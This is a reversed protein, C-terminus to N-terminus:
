QDAEKQRAEHKRGATQEKLRLLGSIQERIPYLVTYYVASRGTEENRIGRPM